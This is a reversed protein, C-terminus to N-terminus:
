VSKTVHFGHQYVVVMVCTTLMVIYHAKQFVILKTWISVILRLAIPILICPQNPLIWVNAKVLSMKKSACKNLKVFYQFHDKLNVNEKAHFDGVLVNAMAFDKLIGSILNFKYQMFSSLSPIYVGAWYKCTNHCYEYTNHYYERTNVWYKFCTNVQLHLIQSYQWLVQRWFQKFVYSNQSLVRLYQM